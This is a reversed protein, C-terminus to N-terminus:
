TIVYDDNEWLLSLTSSVRLWKMIYAGRQRTNVQKGKVFCSKIDTCCHCGQKEATRLEFHVSHFGVKDSGFPMVSDQWDSRNMERFVHSHSSHTPPPRPHPRRRRSTQTEQSRIQKSRFTCTVKKNSNLTSQGNNTKGFTQWNKKPCWSSKWKESWEKYTVMKLPINKIQQVAYCQCTFWELMLFADLQFSSGSSHRCMFVPCLVLKLDYRLASEKLRECYCM